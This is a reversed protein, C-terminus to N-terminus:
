INIKSWVKFLFYLQWWCLMAAIRASPLFRMLLDIGIKLKRISRENIRRRNNAVCKTGCAPKTIMIFNREKLQLMVRRVSCSIGLSRCHEVNAAM